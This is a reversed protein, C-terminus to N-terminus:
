LQLVPPRHSLSSSKALSPTRTHGTNARSRPGIPGGLPSRVASLPRNATAPDPSTPLLLSHSASSPLTPLSPRRGDIMPPTVSRTNPISPLRRIPTTSRSPQSESTSPGARAPTTSASRALLSHAPSPSRSYSPPASPTLVNEFSPQRSHSADSEISPRRSDPASTELSPRRFQSADAEVSPRRFHLPETPLPKPPSLSSSTRSLGPPTTPREIVKEPEANPPPVSSGRKLPVDFAIKSNPSILSSARRPSVGPYIGYWELFSLTTSASYINVPSPSIIDPHAGVTTQVRLPSLTSSSTTASSGTSPPSLAPSHLLGSDTMQKQLDKSFRDGSQEFLAALSIPRVSRRMGKLQLNRPIASVPTQMWRVKESFDDDYHPGTAVDPLGASNASFKDIEEQFWAMPDGGIGDLDLAGDEWSCPDNFIREALASGPLGGVSTPLPSILPSDLVDLDPYNARFMLAIDISLPYCHWVTSQRSFLYFGDLVPNTLFWGILLHSPFICDIHDDGMNVSCAQVLCCPDFSTTGCRM